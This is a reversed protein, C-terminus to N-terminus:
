IRDIGAETIPGVIEELETRGQVKRAAIHPVAHFGLSQLQEATSLTAELTPGTSATVTIAREPAVYENVREVVGATPLIEYRASRLPSRLTAASLRTEQRGATADIRATVAVM